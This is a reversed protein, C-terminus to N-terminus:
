AELSCRATTVSCIVLAVQIEYEWGMLLSALETERPYEPYPSM